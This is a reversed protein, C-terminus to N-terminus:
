RLLEYAFGAGTIAVATALIKFLLTRTSTYKLLM